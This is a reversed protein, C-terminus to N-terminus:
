ALLQTQIEQQTHESLGLGTGLRQLFHRESEHDLNVALLAAAYVENVLAPRTMAAIEDASRPVALEAELFSRTEADIGADATRALIRGREDADIKGDAAAASIMVRVLLVAEAASESLHSLDRAVPPPPPLMGLPTTPPSMPAAALPTPPTLAPFPTPPPSAPASEAPKRFHEFAAVAVGLAGLGLAAKGTFQGTRFVSQSRGRRGGFAGGLAQGVISGLLKEPDFM